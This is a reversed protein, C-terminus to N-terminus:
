GGGTGQTQKQSTQRLLQGYLPKGDMKGHLHQLKLRYKLQESTEDNWQNVVGEKATATLFEEESTNTYQSLSQKEVQLTDQISM